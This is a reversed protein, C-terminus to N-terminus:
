SYNIIYYRNIYNWIVLNILFKSALSIGKSINKFQNCKNTYALKDQIFEKAHNNKLAQDKTSNNIIKESIKAPINEKITFPFLNSILPKIPKLPEKFLKPITNTIFCNKFLNSSHKTIHRDKSSPSKSRCGTFRFWKGVFNEIYAIKCAM